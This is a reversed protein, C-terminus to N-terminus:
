RSCMLAPVIISGKHMLEEESLDVWLKDDYCEDAVMMQTASDVLERRRTLVRDGGDQNTTHMKQQDYELYAVLFERMDEFTFVDGGLRPPRDGGITVKIEPTLRGGARGRGRANGWSAYHVGGAGQARAGRAATSDKM